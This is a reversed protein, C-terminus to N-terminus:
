SSLPNRLYRSNIKVDPMCSFGYGETNCMGAEGIKIRFFGNEGWDEGWSNKFIWFKIGNEWGWGVLEVSHTGRIGDSVRYYIGSRYQKFDNYVVFACHVPGNELVERKISEEDKFVRVEGKCKYFKMQEGGVCQGPCQPVLGEEGSVYPMCQETVTGTDIMYQISQQPDGGHCADAVSNCSVVHQTSLLTHPQKSHMCYRDETIETTAFAWCSGCQGQNRPAHICNSSRSDYHKPISPANLPDQRTASIDAQYFPDAPHRLLSDFETETMDYIPKSNLLLPLLLIILLGKM